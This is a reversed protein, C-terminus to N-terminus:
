TECEPPATSSCPSTLAYPPWAAARVRPMTASPAFLQWAAVEDGGDSSTVDGLVAVLQRIGSRELGFPCSDPNAAGSCCEGTGILSLSVYCWSVHRPPRLLPHCCPRTHGPACLMSTHPRPRVQGWETCQEMASLLYSTTSKSFALVEAGDMAYIESLAAVTNSVVMPNADATMDRLMDLFGREAALDPAIDYLKAVCIAATKRVYPDTDQLDHQSHLIPCSPCSIHRSRSDLATSDYAHGSLLRFVCM